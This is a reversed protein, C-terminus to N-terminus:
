FCTQCQVLGHETFHFLVREAWGPEGRGPTVRARQQQHDEGVGLEGRETRTLGSGATGPAGPVQPVRPLRPYTHLRPRGPCSRTGTKTGPPRARGRQVAEWQQAHDHQPSPAGRPYRPSDTDDGRAESPPPFQGQLPHHQAARDGDRPVGVGPLCVRSISSVETGQVREPDRHWLATPEPESKAVPNQHWCESGSTQKLRLSVM